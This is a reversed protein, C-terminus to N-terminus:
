ELVFEPDLLPGQTIPSVKRILDKLSAQHSLRGTAPYLYSLYARLDELFYLLPPRLSMHAQKVPQLTEYLLLRNNKKKLNLFIKTV